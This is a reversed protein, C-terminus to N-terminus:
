LPQVFPCLLFFWLLFKKSALRLNCHKVTSGVGTPYVTWVSVAMLFAQFPKTFFVWASSIKPQYKVLLSKSYLHGFYCEPKRQPNSVSDNEWWAEADHSLLCRFLVSLVNEWVTVYFHLCSHYVTHPKVEIPVAPANEASGVFCTQSGPIFYDWLSQDPKLHSGTFAVNFSVQLMVWHERVFVCSVHTPALSVHSNYMLLSSDSRHSIIVALVAM